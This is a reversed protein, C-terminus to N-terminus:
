FLGLLTRSFARLLARSLFFCRLLSGPAPPLPCSVPVDHGSTDPGHAPPLSSFHNLGSLFLNQPLCALTGEISGTLQHNKFQGSFFGLAQCRGAPGGSPPPLAPGCPAM